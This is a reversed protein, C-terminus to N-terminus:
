WGRGPTKVSGLVVAAVQIVLLELGAQDTQAVIHLVVLLYSSGSRALVEPGRLARLLLAGIM